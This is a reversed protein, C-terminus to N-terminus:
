PPLPFRPPEAFAEGGQGEGAEGGGGEGRLHPLPFRVSASAASSGCQSKMPTSM